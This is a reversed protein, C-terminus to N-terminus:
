STCYPWPVSSTFNVDLDNNTDKLFITIGDLVLEFDLFHPVENQFMDVTYHFNKDFKNLINLVQSVNEPKMVFLTADVFRSYFKIAGDTILPKALLLGLSSVMSIHDEQQYFKNNFSFVTKTCTELVLKKM